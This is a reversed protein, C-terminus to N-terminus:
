GATRCGDRRGGTRDRDHHRPEGGDRQEADHPDDARRHHEFGHVRAVGDPEEEVVAPVSEDHEAGDHQRDGAALREVGVHAVEAPPRDAQRPEPQHQRRQHQVVEALARQDQEVRARRRLGEVQHRRRPRQQREHHQGRQGGDDGRLREDGARERQRPLRNLEAVRRAEVDFVGRRELHALDVHRLHVPRHGDRGDEDHQAELRRAREGGGVANGHRHRHHDRRQQQVDDRGLAPAPRVPRRQGHGADEEGHIAREEAGVQDLNRLAAPQREHDRGNM